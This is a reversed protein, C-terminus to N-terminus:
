AAGRKGTPHVKTQDPGPDADPDVTSALRQILPTLQEPLRDAQEDMRKAWQGLRVLLSHLEARGQPTIQWLRRRRDTAARRGRLLGKGRLQEVLGSVHAPSVALAAALEKQSVGGAPAAACSWLMSFEADTLQAPESQRAVEARLLRACQSIQESLEIWRKALHPSKSVADPQESTM